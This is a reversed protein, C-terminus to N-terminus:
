IRLVRVVDNPASLPGENQTALIARYNGKEGYEKEAGFYFIAHLLRRYSHEILVM